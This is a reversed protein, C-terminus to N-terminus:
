SNAKKEKLKKWGGKDERKKSAIVLGSQTLKPKKDVFISQMLAGKQRGDIDSLKVSKRQHHVLWAKELVDLHGTRGQRVTLRKVDSNNGGTNEM